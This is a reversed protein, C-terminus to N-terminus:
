PNWWLRKCQRILTIDISWNGLKNM